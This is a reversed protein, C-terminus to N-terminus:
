ASLSDSSNLPLALRTSVEDCAIMSVKRKKEDKDAPRNPKTSSFYKGLTKQRKSTQEDDRPEDGSSEPESGDHSPSKQKSKESEKSATTRRGASRSARKPMGIAKWFHRAHYRIRASNTIFANWAKRM